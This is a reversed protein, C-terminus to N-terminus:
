VRELNSMVDQHLALRAARRRGQEALIAPRARGLAVFRVLAAGGVALFVWVGVAMLDGYFAPFGDMGWGREAVWRAVPPVALLMVLAVAATYGVRARARKVGEALEADPRPRPPAVLTGDRLRTWTRWSLSGPVGLAFGVVLLVLLWAEMPMTLWDAVDLMGFLFIGALLAVGAGAFAMALGPRWRRRAEAQMGYLVFSAAIGAAIRCSEADAEFLRAFAAYTAAVSCAGGLLYAALAARYPLVPEAPPERHARVPSLLFDAQEEDLGAAHQVTALYEAQGRGTEVFRAVAGAVADYDPESLTDVKQRHDRADSTTPADAAGKRLHARLRALVFAFVAVGLGFEVLPFSPVARALDGRYVAYAVLVVAVLANRLLNAKFWAVFGSGPTAEDHSAFALLLRAGYLAYAVIGLTLAKGASPIAAGFASFLRYAALGAFAYGLVLVALAVLERRDFVGWLRGQAPKDRAAKLMPRHARWVGVSLALGFAWWPTAPWGPGGELLANLFGVLLLGVAGGAAVRQLAAGNGRPVDWHLLGRGAAYLAWAMCLGLVLPAPDALFGSGFVGIGVAVLTAAVIPVGLTRVANPKAEAAPQAM